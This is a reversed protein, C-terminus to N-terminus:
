SIGRRLDGYFETKHERLLQFIEKLEQSFNVINNNDDKIAVPVKERLYAEFIFELDNIDYRTERFYDLLHHVYYAKVHELKSNSKKKLDKDYFFKLQRVVVLEELDHSEGLDDEIAWNGAYDITRDVYNAIKKDIGALDTWKNHIIWNPM